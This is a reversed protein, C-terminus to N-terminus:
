SHATFNCQPLHFERVKVHESQGEQAHRIKVIMRVAKARINVDEDGLMALLLNEFPAFFCNQQVSQQLISLLVPAKLCSEKPVYHKQVHNSHPDELVCGCHIQCAASSQQIPAIQIWLCDM